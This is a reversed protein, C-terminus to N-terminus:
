KCKNCIGGIVVDTRKVLFGKPLQISPTVVYDMCITVNCKDCIFHIHNDHHHGQVCEDKCLAYLVSNDATPITHILGKLVFTQLTRYITARDFKEKTKKEIDAHALAGSNSLFLQLINKRSETISLRNRKLLDFTNQKM